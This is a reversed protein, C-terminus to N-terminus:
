DTFYDDGELIVVYEGRAQELTRVFNLKGGQNEEALRLRIRDPNAKALETVIERTGDTSCDEGVIIEIPFTTRQDLASNIAQAIYRQQNYTIM